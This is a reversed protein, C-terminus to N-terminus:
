LNTTLHRRQKHLNETQLRNRRNLFLKSLKNDMQGPIIQNPRRIGEVNPWVVRDEGEFGGVRNDFDM